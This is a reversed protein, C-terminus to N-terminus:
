RAPTPATGFEYLLAGALLFGAIPLAVAGLIEGARALPADPDASSEARARRGLVIAGAACALGAGSGWQAAIEFAAVLPDGFFATVRTADLAKGLLIVFANFPLTLALAAM